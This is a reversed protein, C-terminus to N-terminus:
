FGHVALAAALKPKAGSEIINGHGVVLRDFDWQMMREISSAFARRDRILSRFLRSMGPFQRIGGLSHFFWRTWTAAEPGFNFVLDTVILTRTPRHCFVYERVRPMGEVPLVELEDAWAAPPTRLSFIESDMAPLREPSAYPVNPFVTRGAAAFTDHFLTADLLWAPRGLSHIASVDAFTFPGTSHIVLDGSCLRIVTVTRGIQVGLLALPYRLVWLNNAIKQVFRHREVTV